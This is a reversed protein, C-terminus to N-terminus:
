HAHSCEGVQECCRDHMFGFADEVDISHRDDWENETFPDGCHECVFELRIHQLIQASTM